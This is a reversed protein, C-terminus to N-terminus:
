VRAAGTSASRRSSRTPPMSCRPERQVGPRRAALRGAPGDSLGCPISIAPIGALSMPVTCFDNLYMALPDGTKEGLGFAVTPATPTVISTSRARLRRAFDEAIKTRVRQARGYYADYYGRRCRTPASCSAGSSRPASATTAPARTCTSCITPARPACGTACATSARSTRPPRRRRSCTTPRCRTRRTRCRAGRAVSAGLEEACRSRASSPAGARRSRHGRGTLESPCARAAGRGPARGRPLEIASRPVAALHRRLPRPRGHPAAAAGRRDRRADAARGPRALLRVRDHRLALGRRLDTEARRDRVARGAPPDLRGHRHRAGVARPRRRRRRRQRGLLRGPRAHPGVPQLVPGFASNENSSGM